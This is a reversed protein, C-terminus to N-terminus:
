RRRASRGRRPRRRSLGRKRPSAAWSISFLAGCSRTVTASLRASSYRVRSSPAGAARSPRPRRPLGDGGVRRRVLRDPARGRHPDDVRDVAGALETCPSGPKQVRTARARSPTTSAEQVRVRGREVSNATAARPRPAQSLPRASCAPEGSWSRSRRIAVECGRVVRRVVLLAGQEAQAAVSEGRPRAARGAQLVQGDGAAGQVGGGEAPLEGPVVRGPQQQDLLAPPAWRVRSPTGKVIVPSLARGNVAARSAAVARPPHCPATPRLRVQINPTREFEADIRVDLVEFSGPRAWRRGSSLAGPCHGMDVLGPVAGRVGAPRVARHRGAGM